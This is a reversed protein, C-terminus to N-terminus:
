FPDIGTHSFASPTPPNQLGAVEAGNVVLPVAIVVDVDIPEAGWFLKAQHDRMKPFLDIGAEIRFISYDCEFIEAWFFHLFLELSATQFAYAHVNAQGVRRV